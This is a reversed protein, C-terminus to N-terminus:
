CEAEKVNEPDQSESAPVAQDLEFYYDRDKGMEVSKLTSNMLTLIGKTLGMGQDAEVADASIGSGRVSVLLHVRDEDMCKGFIQFLVNGSEMDSIMRTLIGTLVRKFKSGDGYLRDPLSRSIDIKLEIKKEDLSGQVVKQVEDIMGGLSYPVLTLKMKGSDLDSEDLTNSVLTLFTEVTTKIESVNKRTEEDKATELILDSRNLIIQMPTYADRFFSDLSEKKEKNRTQDKEIQNRIEDLEKKEQNINQITFLVRDPQRGEKRDMAIFRFRSWGTHIRRCEVALSSREAMRKALTKLNAFRGVLKRHKPVIETRVLNEMQESASLEKPRTSDGESASVVEISNEKLNIIYIAEYLEAMCAIGSRRLEMEKQAQKYAMIMAIYVGFTLLWLIFLVAIFVFMPGQMLSMQYYFELKYDSVSIEDKYYLIFGVVMESAADIPMERVTVSPHYIIYDGKKLPILLDSEDIVYDLEITNEDYDALNLTQVKEEGSQVYQHIESEGNWFQNLYCDEAINIQLTWSSVEQDSGNKVVADYIMGTLDMDRKKWSSTDGGRFHIDVYTDQTEDMGESTHPTSNHKSVMAIHLIICAVAIAGLVILVYRFTRSQRVSMTKQGKM